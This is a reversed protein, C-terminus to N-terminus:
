PSPAYEDLIEPKNYRSPLLKELAQYSKEIWQDWIDDKTLAIHNEYATIAQEEIPYVKEELVLEYEELELESMGKPRQSDMMATALLAYLTARNYGAETAKSQIGYDIIKAYDTLLSKLLKRKKAMSKNLPQTLKIAKYQSMKDNSLSVLATAALDKARTETLKNQDVATIIKRRWFDQKWKLDEGSITAMRGYLTILNQRAELALNAPKPFSKIYRKWIMTSRELEAGTELKMLQEAAQWLATRKIETDKSSNALREYEDASAAWNKTAEYAILLKAPISAALEHKPNRSAFAKLGDIALEFQNTAMLLMTSDYDGLIREKSKPETNALHAFMNIAQQSQGADRLAVAQLFISKARQDRFTAVQDAKIQKNNILETYGIEAASFNGLDFEGNAIVVQSRLKQEASAFSSQKLQRALAIASPVDNAELKLEITQSIVDASRPYKSFSSLYRESETILQNRNPEDAVRQFADQYGLIIRFGAEERKEESLTNPSYALLAYQELAATTNGSDHLAEALLWRKNDVEPHDPFSNLFIVYWSTTSEYDAIAKSKQARAHHYSMVNDLHKYLMDSVEVSRELKTTQWYDSGAQYTIVFDEKAKLVLDIFGSKSLVGIGKDEFLPASVTYPNERVFRIYTNATDQLREQQEYLAALSMYLDAEFASIQETTVRELKREGSDIARFYEALTEAGELYSLSLASVRYTEKLLNDTVANRKEKSEYVRSLLEIFDDLAYDFNQRQFHTWGRKFLASNYLRNDSSLVKNYLDQAQPYQKDSYYREALRFRAELVEQQDSNSQALKRIQVLAGDIDGQLESIRALQYQVEPQNIESGHNNTLQTYYTSALKLEQQLEQQQDEALYNEANIMALQALKELAERKIVESQTANLLLLYSEKARELATRDVDPNASPQTLSSIKVAERPQHESLTGIHKEQLPEPGTDPTVLDIVPSLISCGTLSIIAVSTLTTTLLKNM